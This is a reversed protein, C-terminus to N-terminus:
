IEMKKRNLYEGEYVLQDTDKDYEKGKGEM